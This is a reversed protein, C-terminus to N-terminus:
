PAVFIATASYQHGEWFDTSSQTIVVGNGGLAAAEKKLKNMAYSQRGSSADVVGLIKANAPAVAYIQVAEVPMKPSYEATATRHGSACGASILAILFLGYIFPKM